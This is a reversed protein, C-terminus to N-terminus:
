EQSGNLALHLKSPICLWLTLLTKTMNLRMYLSPSMMAEGSSHNDLIRFRSLTEDFKKCIIPFASNEEAIM